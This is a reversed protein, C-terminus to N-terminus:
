ETDPSCRQIEIQRVISDCCGLELAFGKDAACVDVFQEILLFGVLLPGFFVTSRNGLEVGIILQALLEIDAQRPYELDAFLLIDLFYSFHSM